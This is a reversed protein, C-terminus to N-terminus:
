AAEIKKSKILEPWLVKWDDPRLAKRTVARSVSEAKVAIEPSALKHGYGILRLYARTTGIASIQEDTATKLWVLLGDHKTM